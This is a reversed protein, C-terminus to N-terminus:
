GFHNVFCLTCQFAATCVHRTCSPLLSFWIKKKTKKQEKFFVVCGCVALAWLKRILRNIKRDDQSALQYLFFTRTLIWFFWSRYRQWYTLFAEFFKGVPQSWSSVSFSIECNWKVTVNQWCNPESQWTEKQWLCSLGWKLTEYTWNM